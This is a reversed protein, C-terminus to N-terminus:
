ANQAIRETVKRLTGIMELLGAVKSKLADISAQSFVVIQNYTTRYVNRIMDAYRPDLANFRAIKIRLESRILQAAKQPTKATLIPHYQKGHFTIPGLALNVEDIQRLESHTVAVQVVPIGELKAYVGELAVLGSAIFEHSFADGVLEQKENTPIGQTMFERLETRAASTSFIDAANAMAERIVTLDSESVLPPVELEDALLPGTGIPVPSNNIPLHPDVNGVLSLEPAARSIKADLVAGFRGKNEGHFTPATGVRGYVDAQNPQNFTPASSLNSQIAEPNRLESKSIVNRGFVLGVPASKSLVVTQTKPVGSSVPRKPNRLEARSTKIRFEFLARETPGIMVGMDAASNEPIVDIKLGSPIIGFDLISRSTQILAVGTEALRNQVMEIVSKFDHVRIHTRADMTGIRGRVDDDSVVQPANFVILDYKAELQSEDAKTQVLIPRISQQYLGGSEDRNFKTNRVAKEDVDIADIKVNKFGHTKQLHYALAMADFGSGTGIVLVRIDEKKEQKWAAALMQLRKLILRVFEMSQKNDRVPPYVGVFVSLTDVGILERFERALERMEPGVGFTVRSDGINAARLESRADSSPIQRAEPRATSEAVIKSSPQSRLESRPLLEQIATEFKEGDIMRRIVHYAKSMDGESLRYITNGLFDGYTYTWKPEGKIKEFIRQLFRQRHKSVRMLVKKFGAPNIERRIMRQFADELEGDFMISEPVPNLLEFDRLRELASPVGERTQTWKHSSLIHGLEHAVITRKHRKGTYDPNIVIVGGRKGGIYGEAFGVYGQKIIRFIISFRLLPSLFYGGAVSFLFSHEHFFSVASEHKIFATYLLSFGILVIVLLSDLILWRRLQEKRYQEISPFRVKSAKAEIEDKSLEPYLKVLLTRVEKQYLMASLQNEERKKSLKEVRLETRASSLKTREILQQGLKAEPQDMGVLRRLESRFDESNAGLRVAALSPSIQRSPLESTGFTNTFLFSLLTVQAAAKILLSKFIM